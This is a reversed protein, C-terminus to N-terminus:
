KFHLFLHKGFLSIDLKIENIQLQFPVPPTIEKPKEKIDEPDQHVVFNISEDSESLHPNLDIYDEPYVNSKLASKIDEVLGDQRVLKPNDM